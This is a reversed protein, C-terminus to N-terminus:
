FIRNRFSKGARARTEAAHENREVLQNILNAFTRLVQVHVVRHELQALIARANHFSDLFVHEDVITQELFYSAQEREGHLSIFSSIKSNLIVPTWCPIRNGSDVCGNEWSKGENLILIQFSTQKKGPTNENARTSIPAEQKLTRADM